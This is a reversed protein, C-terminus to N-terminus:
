PRVGWADQEIFDWAERALEELDLRRQPDTERLSEDVIRRYLERPDNNATM